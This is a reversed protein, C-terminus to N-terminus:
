EGITHRAVCFLRALFLLSFVKHKCANCVCIRVSCVGCAHYPLNHPLLSKQKGLFATRLSHTWSHTRTHPTYRIFVEHKYWTRTFIQPGWCMRGVLLSPNWRFFKEGIIDGVFATIFLLKFKFWVFKCVLKLPAAVYQFLKSKKARRFRGHQTPKRALLLLIICCECVIFLDSWLVLCSIPCFRWAYAHTRCFPGSSVVVVFFLRLRM